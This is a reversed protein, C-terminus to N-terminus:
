KATIHDNFLKCSAYKYITKDITIYFLHKNHRCYIYKCSVFTEHPTCSQIRM